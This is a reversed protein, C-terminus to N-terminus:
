SRGSGDWDSAPSSQQELRESFSPLGSPQILQDYTQRIQILRRFMSKFQV